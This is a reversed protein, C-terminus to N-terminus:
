GTALSSFIVLRKDYQRATQDFAGDCTILNLQPNIAPGFIRELPANAADYVERGSVVFRLEQGAENGVFIEDGAQLEELRFFIAPGTTSDLHGAIVANGPTGPPPGVEYWAVDSYNSPVGMQGNADAGVWQVMTDIGIKPIRLRVPAPTREIARPTPLVVPPEPADAIRPELTSTPEVQRIQSNTATTPSVAPMTPPVDAASDSGVGSVSGLASSTATPVAAEDAGSTGCVSLLLSLTMLLPVFISSTRANM